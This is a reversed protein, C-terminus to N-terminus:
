QVDQDDDGRWAGDIKHYTVRERMKWAVSVLVVGAIISVSAVFYALLEPNAYILIGMLILLVGFVAPTIWFGGTPSPPWSFRM